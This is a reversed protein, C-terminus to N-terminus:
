LPRQLMPLTGFPLAAVVRNRASPSRNPRVWRGSRTVVRVSRACDWCDAWESEEVEDQTLIDGQM